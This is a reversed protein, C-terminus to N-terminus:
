CGMALFSVNEGNAPQLQLGSRYLQQRQKKSLEAPCGMYDVAVFHLTIPQGLQLRLRGQPTLSASRPDLFHLAAESRGQAQQCKWASWAGQAAAAAQRSSGAAGSSSSVQQQVHLCACCVRPVLILAPQMM